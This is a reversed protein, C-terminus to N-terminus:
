VVTFAEGYLEQIEEVGAPRPNTKANVNNAARQAMEPLHEKKVEVQNESLDIVGYLEELGAFIDLGIREELLELRGPVAKNNFDVVEPLLLANALGHSTDYFGSVQHSMAHVLGLGAHQMAAGGLTSALAMDGRAELNKGEKVATELSQFVKEISKQALTDTLENRGTSFFAELSHSLADIGTFFTLKPPLTTTLEPDVIAAFPSMEPTGISIKRNSDPDSIVAWYDVESGTGSTTPLAFYPVSPAIREADDVLGTVDDIGNALCLSVAKTTDIVSGGGLGILCDPGYEKFHDYGKKVTSLHPNRPVDTFIKLAFSKERLKTLIDDLLGHDHVEPSTFVGVKKFGFRDIESVIESRKGPGFKFKTPLEFDFYPSSDEM